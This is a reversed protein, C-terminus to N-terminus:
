GTNSGRQLQDNAYIARGGDVNLCTGTVFTNECLFAVAHAVDEPTGLRNVLTSNRLKQVTDPDVDEGLLVPGPRVCNVRIAPNMSAVEVALSRTTAEVAGKSPFYAAHDLYPRTTAWDGLMVISGGCPQHQMVVSAARSCLLPAVANIQLYRRIEDGSIESLATPHWVAASNILIDIRGFREAAEQVLKESTADEMLDGSVVHAQRDFRQAWQSAASEADAVSENAHLVAHCGRRSLTEAIIRGVRPSGSGTVLAVPDPTQFVDRFDSM